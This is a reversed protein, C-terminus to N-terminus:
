LIGIGEVIHRGDPEETMSRSKGFAFLAEKDTQNRTIYKSLPELADAYREEAYLKMGTARFDALRREAQVQRYYWAGGVAGSVSVAAAVLILLRRRTTKTM